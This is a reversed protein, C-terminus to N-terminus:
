VSKRNGEDIEAYAPPLGDNISGYNARPPQPSQPPQPPQNILDPYFGDGRNSNHHHHHHHVQNELDSGRIYIIRDNSLYPPYKAIIYWSHILGPFYGLFCLLLNILSDCSCIGRRIWVPLPPFLVSVIILCIDSLCECCCM